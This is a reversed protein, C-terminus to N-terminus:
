RSDILSLAYSGAIVYNPNNVITLPHAYMKYAMDTVDILWPNDTPSNGKKQQELIWNETLTAFWYEAPFNDPKVFGLLYCFADILEDINVVEQYESFLTIIDIVGTEIYKRIIALVELSYDIVGDAELIGTGGTLIIYLP